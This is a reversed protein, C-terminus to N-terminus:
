CPRPTSQAYGLGSAGFGNGNYFMLYRDDTAVVCPYATMDSDWGRDSRRITNVSDMRQWGVGDSSLAYGIRYSRDPDTRYAELDRYCYWMHYHAAIRVVCARCIGGEGVDAYDIAVRGEREWDIGDSSVAYKIHYRPEPRGALM